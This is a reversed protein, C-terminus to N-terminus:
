WYGNAGNLFLPDSVFSDARSRRGDPGEGERCGFRRGSSMRSSVTRMKRRGKGSFLFLVGGLFVVGVGWFVACICGFVGDFVGDCRLYIFIEFMGGFKEGLIEWRLM